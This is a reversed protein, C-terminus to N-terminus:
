SASRPPTEEAALEALVARLREMQYGAALAELPALRPDSPHLARLEALRERLPRIEGRRAMELLERLAENAAPTDSTTLARTAPDDYRWAIRLHMTLKAILDSERFPKPLFDDCGAELASDRNFSLVSASMAILVLAGGAPPLARLRRALELGDMGPMRLDLFVLHPQFAPMADLAADGNAAERLEFGLPSLLEVLIARNVAVDDVVLLRRREGHYGIPPRTAPEVDHTGTALTELPLTFSFTSGRGPASEVALQGGMLEVLRRAIALGLGTGPEPPRGDVPQHFPQFLNAQDKEAIGVGTDEVAFAIRGASPFARLVVAGRITFKVANGLLNDLIQRLKQTDGIVTAPLDASGELSFHLQKQVARAELATFLDRLLQPLNFPTPHLELKGAEIKSFDLVENIMRLLHEGSTQVVRLRERDQPVIHASKQLVQAYGIVGNLPTRLEHSMNALFASKAKNAAALEATRSVVLTELRAQERTARRLRHRVFGMVAGGCALAYLAYALNSRSWPPTVYLTFRAPPGTRGRADVTRVEFIFPGRELNTFTVDNRRTPTSWTDNFGLLRTQFREFESTGFRGSAFTIVIPQPSFKLTLADPGAGAFEVTRGEAQIDRILPPAIPRPQNLRDVEVRVLGLEGKGWVVNSEGNRGPEWFIRRAGSGAFLAHIEDPMAFPEVTGNAARRLRLLPYPVEKTKYDTLLGNTWLEGPAGGAVPNLVMPRPEWATLPTDAIFRGTAADYRYLGHATDFHLGLGTKWLFIL